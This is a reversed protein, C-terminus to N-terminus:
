ESRPPCSTGRNEHWPTRKTHSESLSSITKHNSIYRDANSNDTFEPTFATLHPMHESQLRLLQQIAISPAPSSQWKRSARFHLM